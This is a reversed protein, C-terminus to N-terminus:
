CASDARFRGSPRPSSNTVRALLPWINVFDREACALMTGFKEIMPGFNASSPWIPILGPWCRGFEPWVQGFVDRLALKVSNPRLEYFDLWKHGIDEM